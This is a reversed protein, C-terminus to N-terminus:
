DSESFSLRLLDQRVREPQRGTLKALDSVDEYPIAAVRPHLSRLEKLAQQYLDEREHRTQRGTKAQLRVLRQLASLDPEAPATRRENMGLAQALTGGQTVRQFDGMDGEVLAPPAESPASLQLQAAAALVLADVLGDAPLRKWLDSRVTEVSVEYRRALWRVSADPVKSANGYKALAGELAARYGGDAAHGAPALALAALFLSAVLSTKM